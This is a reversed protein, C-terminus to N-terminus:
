RPRGHPRSVHAAGQAYAEGAIHHAAAADVLRERLRVIRRQVLLPHVVRAVVQPQGLAGVPRQRPRERGLLDPAIRQGLELAQPRVQADDVEFGRDGGRVCRPRALADMVAHVRAVDVQQAARLEVGAHQGVVVHEVPAALPRACVSCVKRAAPM